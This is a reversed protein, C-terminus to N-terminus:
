GMSKERENEKRVHSKETTLPRYQNKKLFKGIFFGKKRIVVSDGMFPLQLFM